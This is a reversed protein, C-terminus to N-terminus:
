RRVYSEEALQYPQRNRTRRSTNRWRSRYCVIRAVRVPLLLDGRRQHARVPVGASRHVQRLLWIDFGTIRTLRVFRPLLSLWLRRAFTQETMDAGLRRGRQFTCTYRRSEVFEKAGDIQLRSVVRTFRLQLANTARTAPWCRAEARRRDRPVSSGRRLCQLDFGSYAGRCVRTTNSAPLTDGVATRGQDATARAMRSMWHAALSLGTRFVTDKLV